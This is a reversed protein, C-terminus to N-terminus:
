RELQNIIKVANGVGDETRIRAGLDAARTRMEADSIMTQIGQTLREATLVKRLLRTAIDPADGEGTTSVVFLARQAAKLMALDLDAFSVVRVPWGAEALARATIWALEEGVGTQSAFAVLTADEGAVGLLAESREAERRRARRVTADTVAILAAWLVVLALTWLWRVPDTTM